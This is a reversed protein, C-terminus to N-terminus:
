NANCQMTASFLLLGAAAVEGAAAASLGSLCSTLAAQLLLLPFSLPLLLMSSLELGASKSRWSLYPM